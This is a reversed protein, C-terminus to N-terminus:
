ACCRADQAHVWRGPCLWGCLSGVPLGVEISNTRAAREPIGLLKSLAYGLFFGGAAWCANSALM